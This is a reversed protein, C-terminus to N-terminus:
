KNKKEEVIPIGNKEGKIEYDKTINKPPFHERKPLLFRVIKNRKDGKLTTYEIIEAYIEKGLLQEWSEFNITDEINQGLTYAVLCRTKSPTGDRMFGINAPRATFFIRRTTADKGEKDYATNGDKFSIVELVVNIVEEQETSGYRQRTQPNIGIVKLRYDDSPLLAFKPRNEDIEKKSPFKM